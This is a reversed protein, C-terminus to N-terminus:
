NYTIVDIQRNQGSYIWIQYTIIIVITNFSNYMTVTTIIKGTTIIFTLTYWRVYLKERLYIYSNYIGSIIKSKFLLCILKVIKNIKKM